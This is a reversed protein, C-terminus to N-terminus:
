ISVKVDLHATLNDVYKRLQILNYKDILDNLPTPDAGDYIAECIGCLFETNYTTWLEAYDVISQVTPLVSLVDEYEYNLWGGIRRMFEIASEGEQQRMFIIRHKSLFLKVVRDFKLGM